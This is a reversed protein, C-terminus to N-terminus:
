AGPSRSGFSPEKHAYLPNGGVLNGRFSRPLAHVGGAVLWSVVAIRTPIVGALLYSLLFPNPNHFM